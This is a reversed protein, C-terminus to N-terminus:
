DLSDSYTRLAESFEERRPNRGFWELLRPILKEWVEAIMTEAYAPDYKIPVNTHSRPQDRHPCGDLVSWRNGILEYPFDWAFYVDKGDVERNSVVMKVLDRKGLENATEYLISAAKALELCSKLTNLSADESLKQLVEQLSLRENLLSAKRKEFLEKELNGEIFADTLRMLRTEIQGLQLRVSERQERLKERNKATEQALKAELYPSEGPLFQLPALKSLFANEIIEERLCTSRCGPSHCRYYAHEKQREGYLSRGCRKCTLLRRFLFEHVQVKRHLKGHLAAQTRDFLSKTILPTHIGPFVEGSKLRILGIYFPNNLLLSLSNVCLTKRDRNRLGRETMHALLTRLSYEGTAYLEFAERVLPGQVPDIEKSKGSGKNLYGSPAGLPYLGQKLRGYFGKKTEERLNRIYDAAVVAQIDASLRGSRSSLDLSENAFHVEAGSDSLEGLDAWDRLNRASRDIKHIIVGQAKKQRLLALMRTFMTRGRKAATEREEFWSTIALKNKAAYNEIATRQEQLSVGREGQKPTSVRIYGFYQKV